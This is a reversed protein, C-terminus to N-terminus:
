TATGSASGALFNGDGSYVATIPTNLFPDSCGATPIGQADPVLSIVGSTGQDCKLANGSSDTFTVTGTPTGSGPGNATVTATWGYDYPYGNSFAVKLTTADKSVVETVSGSSPLFTTQDGYYNASVTYPGPSGL